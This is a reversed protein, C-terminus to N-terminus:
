VPTIYIICLQYPFKRKNRHLNVQDSNSHRKEKSGFPRGRKRAVFNCNAYQNTCM